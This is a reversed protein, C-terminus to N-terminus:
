TYPRRTHPPRKAGGTRREKSRRVERFWALKENFKQSHVKALDSHDYLAGRASDHPPREVRAETPVEEAKHMSVNVAHVLPNAQQGPVSGNGSFNIRRVIAFKLPDFVDIGETKSEEAKNTASNLVWHFKMDGPDICRSWGEKDYSLKVANVNVSGKNNGAGNHVPLQFRIRQGPGATAPCTVLVRQGNAILAFPQGPQVGAPVQVEFTQVQPRSGGGGGGGGGGRSSPAPPYIRVNTGPRANDPCTVMLEQGNVMVRFQERPRVGAPITVMYAQRNQNPGSTPNRPLTIRLNQGARM